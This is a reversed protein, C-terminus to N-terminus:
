SDQGIYVGKKASRLLKFVQLAKEVAEFLYACYSFSVSLFVTQYSFCFGLGIFFCNSLFFLFGLGIFFLKILFVGSQGARTVYGM